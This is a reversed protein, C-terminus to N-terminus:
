IEKLYMNSMYGSKGEYTCYYWRVGGATIYNGNSVVLKNASVVQIVASSTTAGKRMNLPATTKFKIQTPVKKLYTGSAWGTYGGYAVRYWTTGTIIKTDGNCTLKTEAPIVTLAKGSVGADQRLWIKGTTMLTVPDITIINDVEKLYKMSVYGIDSGSKAYAWNGKIEKVAIQVGITISKIKGYTIGPGKRMWVSGTTQYVKNFGDPTPTPTVESGNDIVIVAHSGPKVLADGRKLYKTTTLYKSDSLIEFAGSKRALSEMIGTWCVPDISIGAANACACWLSSCDTECYGVKAPDWNNAKLQYYLTQRENQDYGIKANKVCGLATDAIINGKNVDKPRICITWPRSYWNEVNLEGDLKGATRTQNGAQGGHTTGWENLGAQAIRVAM